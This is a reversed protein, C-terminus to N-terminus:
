ARAFQDTLPFVKGPIKLALEDRSFKKRSYNKHPLNKACSFKVANSANVSEGPAIRDCCFYEADNGKRDHQLSATLQISDSKHRIRSSSQFFFKVCSPVRARGETLTSQPRCLLCLAENGVAAKRGM